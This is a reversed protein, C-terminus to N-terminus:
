TPRCGCDHNGEIIVIKDALIEGSRVNVVNIVLTEQLNWHQQAAIRQPLIALLTLFFFISVIRARLRPSPMM